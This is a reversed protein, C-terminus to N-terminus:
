MNETLSERTASACVCAKIVHFDEVVVKNRKKRQKRASEKISRSGTIEEQKFSKKASSIVNM